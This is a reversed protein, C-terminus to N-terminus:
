SKPRTNISASAIKPNNIPRQENQAKLNFIARALTTRLSSLMVLTLADRLEPPSFPKLLIPGLAADRARAVWSPDWAMLVVSLHPHLLKLRRCTEIGDGDPPNADCLVAEPTRRAARRSLAELNGVGSATHGMTNLLRVLYTRVHGDGEAVLVRM